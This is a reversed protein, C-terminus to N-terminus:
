GLVKETRFSLGRSLAISDKGHSLVAVKAHRGDVSTCVYLYEFLEIRINAEILM